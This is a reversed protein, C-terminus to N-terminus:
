TGVVNHIPPVSRFYPAIALRDARTMDESVGLTGEGGLGYVTKAHVARDAKRNGRSRDSPDKRSAFRAEM